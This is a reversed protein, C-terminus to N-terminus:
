QWDWNEISEDEDKRVSYLEPDAEEIQNISIATLPLADASRFSGDVEINFYVEASPLNMADLYMQHIGWEDADGTHVVGNPFIVGKGEIGPRWNLSNELEM